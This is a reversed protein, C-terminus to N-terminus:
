FFVFQKIDMDSFKVYQDMNSIRTRQCQGHLVLRTPKHSFLRIYTHLLIVVVVVIDVVISIPIMIKYDEAFFLAGEVDCAM